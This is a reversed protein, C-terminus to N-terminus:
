MRTRLGLTVLRGVPNSVFGNYGWGAANGFIGSTNGNYFPPEEDTLNRVNLSVIWGKLRSDNGFMYQANVDFTNDADM